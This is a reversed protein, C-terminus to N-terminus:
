VVEEERVSDASVFLTPPTAVLVVAVVRAVLDVKGADVVVNGGLTVVEAGGFFPYQVAVTMVHPVTPM